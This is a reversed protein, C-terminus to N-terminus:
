RKDIYVLPESEADEGGSMGSLHNTESPSIKSVINKPCNGRGGQRGREQEKERERQWTLLVKSGRRRRDFFFLFFSVHRQTMMSNSSNCTYFDGAARIESAEGCSCFSISGSTGLMFSLADTGISTQPMQGAM